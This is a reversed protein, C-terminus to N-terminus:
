LGVVWLLWFGGLWDFLWGVWVCCICLGGLGWGLVWAVGGVFGFVCWELIM